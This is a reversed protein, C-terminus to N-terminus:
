LVNRTKFGTRLDMEPAWLTSRAPDDVQMLEGGQFVAGPVGCDQRISFDAIGDTFRSALQGTRRDHVYICVHSCSLLDAATSTIARLTGAFDDHAQMKAIYKYLLSGREFLRANDLAVGVQQTLAELTAEDEVGFPGTRKNLMQTVGLVEPQDGNRARSLIPMCLISRTIFGTKKDVEPNFRDDEYANKINLAKANSAAWGAVGHKM